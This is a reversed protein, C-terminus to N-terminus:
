EMYVKFSKKGVKVIVITSPETRLSYVFGDGTTYDVIKAEMTCSIMVLLAIFVSKLTFYNKM